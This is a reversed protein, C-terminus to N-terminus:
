GPLQAYVELLRRAVVRIDHHREVYARSEVGRRHREEPTQLWQELVAELTDPNANIIPFGEPYTPVLEPLIYCIVPKGLAMAEVAFVGYAGGRLQDIVLDATGCLAMAEQHSVGSLEAYEFVMGKTQLQEVARRVFDTGKYSAQSPIHVIRPLAVEPQPFAPNFQRLEVRQGVVHVHPFHAKVYAHMCHDAVILHGNTIDSWRQIREKAASDNENYTNVYYPNRAREISPIRVDSGWFEVVVRKGLSRNIRVDLYKFFSPLLSQAYHYHYVDFRGTLRMFKSLSNTIRTLGRGETLEFDAAGYQFKHQPYASFASCGIQRLGRM